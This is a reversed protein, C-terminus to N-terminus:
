RPLVRPEVTREVADPLVTPASGSIDVRAKARYMAADAARMVERLTAGDAPCLAIGLSLPLRQLTWRGVSVPEAFRAAVEREIKGAVVRSVVGPLIAVFEDGGVRAVIDGERVAGTLRRATVQLLEDGAEHGLQDNVAKFEDLDLLLFAYPTGARALGDVGAQMGRRNAVGTLPDLLAQRTLEAQLRARDLAVSARGALIALIREDNKSWPDSAPRPSAILWREGQEGGVLPAGSEEPAPPEDRITVDRWLLLEQAAELLVAEQEAYSPAAQIRTSADLLLHLRQADRAANTATRATAAVLALPALLGLLLLPANEIAYGGALGVAVATGWVATRAALGGGIHERITGGQVARIVAAVALLNLAAYLLAGGVLAVHEAAASDTQWRVVAVPLAAVGAGAVRVGVNFVKKAGARDLLLELVLSAAGFTLVAEGWPLALLMAVLPAEALDIGELLQGHRAVVVYVRNIGVTVALAGLAWWPHVFGTQVLDATALAAALAGASAVVAVLWWWRPPAWRGGRRPEGPAEGQRSM